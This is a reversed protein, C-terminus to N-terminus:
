CTCGGGLVYATDSGSNILEDSSLRCLAVGQDVYDGNQIDGPVGCLDISMANVAEYICYM